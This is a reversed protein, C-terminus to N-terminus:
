HMAFLGAASSVLVAKAFHTRSKVIYAYRWYDLLLITIKM